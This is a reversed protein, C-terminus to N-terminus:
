DAARSTQNESRNGGIARVIQENTLDTELNVRANALIQKPALHMMLLEVTEIVSAHSNIAQRNAAIIVM